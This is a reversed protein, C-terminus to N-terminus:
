AGIAMRTAAAQGHVRDSVQSTLEFVHEAAKVDHGALGCAPTILSQTRLRVADCGLKVLECWLSALGEWYRDCTVAVPQDTPIAGWAVIGGGELFAALYGACQVLDAQVPVSLV